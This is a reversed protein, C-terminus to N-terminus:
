EVSDNGDHLNMERLLAWDEESLDGERVLAGIEQESPREGERLKKLVLDTNISEYPWEVEIDVSANPFVDHGESNQRPLLSSEIADELLKSFSAHTCEEIGYYIFSLAYKSGRYVEGGGFGDPWPPDSINDFITQVDREDLYYLLLKFDLLGNRIRDRMRQRLQVESPGNVEKEGILYARDDYTLMGQDRERPDETVLPDYDTRKPSRDEDEHTGDM